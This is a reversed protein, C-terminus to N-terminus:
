TQRVFEKKYSNRLDNLETAFGAGFHEVVLQMAQVICQFAAALATASSSPPAPSWKVTKGERTIALGIAKPGAHIWDSFPGYLEQYLLEGKVKDFVQKVTVGCRWNSYYPDAKGRKRPDEYEKGYKRLFDDIRQKTKADVAIGAQTEKKALRWDEVYSFGRWRFAKREPDQAVWLISAMTELMSRAVLEADRGMNNNILIKVSHAQEALKCLFSLALFGFHDSESYTVNSICREALIMAEDVYSALKPLDNEARKELESM